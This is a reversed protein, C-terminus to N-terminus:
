RNDTGSDTSRRANWTLGYDRRAFKGHASFSARRVGRIIGGGEFTVDLTIPWTPGRVTLRGTIAAIRVLYRSRRTRSHACPERSEVPDAWRTSQDLRVGAVVQTHPSFPIHPAKLVRSSSGANGEVGACGM